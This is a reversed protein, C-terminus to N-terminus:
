VPRDVVPLVADAADNVQDQLGLEKLAAEVVVRALAQRDPLQIEAVATEAERAISALTRHADNKEDYRDFPVLFVYKDIDRPGQLGVAQLPRVRERMTTSNLVGLLYYAEDLTDVASWYLKQDVLATPDSIRAAYLNAGAKPYVVRHASQQSAQATTHSMYDVRSLLDGTENVSRNEQWLKEATAWWKAMDPFESIEDLTLLHDTVPLVMTRPALTRFPVVTEAFHVNKLFVREVVRPDPTLHKWPKKDNASRRVGVRVRGAGVGLPGADIEDAAFLVRPIFVSGQRFMKAYPSVPTDDDSNILIVEHDTIEFEDAVEDWSHNPNSFRGTWLEVKSGMPIANARENPLHEGHIVCSVMPFGTPAKSLDWSEGFAVILRGTTSKEPSWQGSRFGTHPKRTMTGHPMVFSFRGGAKLYMEIARVVFLTSLDRASAGLPGTLLGRPRALALYRDQMAGTMKSYRLWPPNGVLVDVRNDPEALWIPRILNRVYFGWIHNRQARHLARMTALTPGLVASEDETLKFPAVVSDRLLTRTEKKSTDLAADAMATVIRDFRGADRLISRPFVLDTASLAVDVEVLDPGGTAISVVDESAFLDVRQEWQLSDGLYVPISMEPRDGRLREMGIALLYTVRALTVSVPHVDVGIVHSTLSTLADNSSLAQDDAAKLYARIAHFLFTGSGCAPDLVREHLPDTVAHAVVRDALWDPTYYEGLDAREDQPIVSEYLHKLVDHQVSSWDFKAIRDALTQVFAEGGPVEIVWDFFDAEVVGHIGADDFAQGTVLTRATLPGTRGVDYGLVAHAITEATVVLLTHNVFRGVEDKFASGFATRLLKAWLERKLGIEPNSANAEYLATLERVDMLYAPSDAGLRARIEDPSPTVHEETALIAELWGILRDPATTETKARSVEVMEGDILDFLLWEVGDTLIGVYRRGYQGIRTSVYGALQEIAEELVVPNTLSKKVEIVCHGVAVDIRRRTGDGTQEELHVPLLGIDAELLLSHILAQIDAETRDLGKALLGDIVKQVSM